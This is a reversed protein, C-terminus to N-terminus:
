VDSLTSQHSDHAATSAAAARVKGEQTPEKYIAVLEPLVDEMMDVLMDCQACQRANEGALGSVM